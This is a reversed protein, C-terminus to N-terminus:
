EFQCTEHQRWCDSIVNPYICNASHHHHHHSKGWMRPNQSLTRCNIGWRCKKRRKKLTYNQNHVSIESRLGSDTRLPEALQSSQLLTNGSLNHTLQKRFLKSSNTPIFYNQSNPYSPPPLIKLSGSPLYYFTTTFTSRLLSGTSSSWLPCAPTTRANTSTSNLLM